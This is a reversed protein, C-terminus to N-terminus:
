KAPIQNAIQGPIVRSSVAVNEFDSNICSILCYKM